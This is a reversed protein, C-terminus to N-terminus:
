CPSGVSWSTLSAMARPIRKRGTSMTFDWAVSYMGSSPFIRIGNEERDCRLSRRANDRGFLAWITEQLDGKGSTVFKIEGDCIFRISVEPHSLAIKEVAAAVATSETSDKKLFKRRAPVNFFLDEVIITTGDACGVDLLNTIEGGEAELLMGYGSDPTKSYIRLRSVAAIAALAEGRFGLTTIGDLDQATVIKSTAHRRIATPMDEPDIGCGNDAIRIFTIGGRQIEVTIMTAGADLANEMLEKVASSPRDVVEGAAILNAVEFSLVNIKPM